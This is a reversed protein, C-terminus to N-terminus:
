KGQSSTCRGAITHRVPQNGSFAACIRDIPTQEIAGCVCVVLGVTGSVPLRSTICRFSKGLLLVFEM